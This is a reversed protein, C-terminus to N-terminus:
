ELFWYLICILVSLVEEPCMVVWCLWGRSQIVVLGFMQFNGLTHIAGLSWTESTSVISFLFTYVISTRTWYKLEGYHTRRWELGFVIPLLYVSRAQGDGGTLGEQGRLGMGDLWVIPLVLVSKAQGNEGTLGEGEGQRSLVSPHYPLHLGQLWGSWHEGLYKQCLRDGGRSLWHESLDWGGRTFM